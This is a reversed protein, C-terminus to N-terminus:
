SGGSTVAGSTGSSFPAQAPQQLTGSGSSSSSDSSGSASSSGSSSSGPSTSSVTSVTKQEAGAVGIVVAVALGGAALLSTVRRILRRGEDRSRAAEHTDM